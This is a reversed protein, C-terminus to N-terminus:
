NMSAKWPQGTKPREEKKAVGSTRKLEKLRVLEDSRKIHQLIRPDQEPIDKNGM